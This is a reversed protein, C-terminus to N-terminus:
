AYVYKTPILIRVAFEFVKVRSSFSICRTKNALTSCRYIRQSPLDSTRPEIGLTLVLNRLRTGVYAAHNSEMRPFDPEIGSHSVLNANTAVGTRTTSPRAFTLPLRM